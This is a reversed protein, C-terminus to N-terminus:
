LEGPEDHNVVSYFILRVGVVYIISFEILLSRALDIHRKFPRLYIVFCFYTVQVALIAYLAVSQFQIFLFIGAAIFIQKGAIFVPQLQAKRDRKNYFVYSEVSEKYYLAYVIFNIIIFLLSLIKFMGSYEPLWSWIRDSEYEVAYSTVFNALSLLLVGFAIERSFIVAAERLKRSSSKQTFRSILYLCSSLVYLFIIALLMFNVNLGYISKFGIAWYMSSVREAEESNAIDEWDNYGFVHKWTTIVGAYPHADPM